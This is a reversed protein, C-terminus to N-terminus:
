IRFAKAQRWPTATKPNPCLIRGLKVETGREDAGIAYTYRMTTESDAHGPRDQRVKM